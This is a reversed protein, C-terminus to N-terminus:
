AYRRRAHAAAQARMEDTWSDRRSKDKWEREVKTGDKFVYILNNFAPVRIEQILEKFLWEDFEAAGLVAATEAM